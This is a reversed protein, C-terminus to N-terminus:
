FKLHVGAFPGSFSLRVDSEFGDRDDFLWWQWGGLLGIGPLPSLEGGTEIGVVNNKRLFSLVLPVSTWTGRAYLTLPRVPRAGIQGGLVTGPTTAGDSETRGGSEVELDMRNIGGGVLLEVALVDHIWIGGRAGVTGLHFDYRHRVEAPGEIPLRDLQVSEGAGLSQSSRGHGFVYGIELGLAPRIAKGEPGASAGAADGNPTAPGDIAPAPAPGLLTPEGERILPVTVRGTPFFVSPDTGEIRDDHACGAQACVALVAAAKWGSAM